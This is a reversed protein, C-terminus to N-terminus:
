SVYNQARRSHERPCSIKRLLKIFGRLRYQIAVLFEVRAFLSNTRRVSLM